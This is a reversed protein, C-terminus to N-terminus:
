YVEKNGSSSNRTHIVAVLGSELKILAQDQMLQNSIGRTLGFELKEGDLPYLVGQVSVKAGEPHLPLLSLTDGPSGEVVLSDGQRLLHVEEDGCVLTIPINLQPHALLILNGFTMDLRGGVAGYVLIEEAGREQALLLALELDTQDKDAPYQIVEVGKGKWNAVLDPESSDLDGILVDPIIKQAQCHRSGGDAAILLGEKKIDSPHCSGQFEGNAYIIAQM